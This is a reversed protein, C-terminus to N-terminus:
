YDYGEPTRYSLTDFRTTAPDFRMPIVGVAGNRHKAVHLEAIGRKDTEPDYLEERYIFWVNDSDQEVSGSERLDSLLPVHSQRGEVARSLQSLAIVPCHLERTLNKLGRSIDSVDQVRNERQRTSDMLQLYDVMPVAPREHQTLHRMTALRIQEATMASIDAIFIRVGALRAMAGMVLGLEDESLHLTRLRHTDIRTEMALLRILLQERSMELSCILVDCERRCALNYALSLLFSTKGVAPRAGIVTLEDAHLGGTIEDLDRYDTMLGLASEDGNKVREIKAYFADIATGIPQFVEEASRLAIPRLLGLADALTEEATRREDYGLAAIKGGVAILARRVAAQEVARAYHEVHYSTPVGDVLDSLYALGGVEDLRGQARLEELVLRTDPPTRRSYCALMAEYIWRHREAYFFEARFWPAIPVIAQRNMLVSGLVAREAELSAPLALDAAPTTQYNTRTLAKTDM